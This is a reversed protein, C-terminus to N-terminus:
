GLEALMDSISSYKVRPRGSGSARWLEAKNIVQWDDWTVVRGGPDGVEQRIGEWGSTGSTDESAGSQLFAEQSNWDNVIADGTAFADDMTSAIVGTPGRKVWGACYLGPYRETAITAAKNSVDRVVRGLGDNTIIGRRKDFPIGLDTFGPLPQSKYGISRFVLQSPLTTVEGTGHVTSRPYFPSSLLTRELTTKGVRSTDTEMPRFETPSLCFDLSWKKLATEVPSLSGKRLVEMIRRLARPLEKLNEPILSTDVPYAGVNPLKMLERVEKITFAAQMPGRRGVVRIRKVRSRALTDLAYDAMDTKRLVDVDELLMRAVDLAVNGQGIIVAEDGQELDPALHTHEPLGNYWGVFERASYIGKL